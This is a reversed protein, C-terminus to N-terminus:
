NRVGVKYQATLSMCDRAIHGFSNKKKEAEASGAPRLILETQSDVFQTLLHLFPGIANQVHEPQQLRNFLQMILRLLAQHSVLCVVSAVSRAHRKPSTEIARLNINSRSPGTVQDLPIHQIYTCQLRLSVTSNQGDHQIYQRELSPPNPTTTLTTHM